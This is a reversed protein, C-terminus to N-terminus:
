TELNQWPLKKEKLRYSFLELGCSQIKEFLRAGRQIKTFLDETAWRIRWFRSYGDGLTSWWWQNNKAERESM